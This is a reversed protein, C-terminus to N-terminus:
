RDIHEEWVRSGIITGDESAVAEIRVDYGDAGVDVRMTSAVSVDVEPWALRYTCSADAVQHFTRRDVTVDGAYEESATGDYPVPYSSGHRVTCTTTRRLVDHTTTWLVGAADEGSTPAGDRFAPAPRHNEQWLPLDLAGGHVTLEVPAAPAVTNPWDAGAVALRLRQGPRFTYACADLVVEVDIEEGPELV